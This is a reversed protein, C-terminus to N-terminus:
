ARKIQKQERQTRTFNDIYNGEVIKEYATILDSISKLKLQEDSLEDKVSKVESQLSKLRKVLDSIDEV